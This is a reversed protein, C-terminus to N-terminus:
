PCPSYFPFHSHRSSRGSMGDDKRGSDCCHHSPVAGDEIVMAAAMDRRHSHSKGAEVAEEEAKARAKLDAMVRVEAAALVRRWMM